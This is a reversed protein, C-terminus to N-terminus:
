RRRRVTRVDRVFVAHERRLQGGLPDDIGSGDSSACVVGDWPVDVRVDEFNVLVLREDDGHVRRLALVGDPADLLELSGQQLAPSLRRAHLTARVMNLVSLPDRAQWAVNRVKSLPPFPLWAPTGWGHGPDETWPIPARCGDRGGPDVVAPGVVVADEMGLEDGQYLFPTGRLGLLLVLGARARAERGGWRTRHRPNDHNSLVYSPWTPGDHPYAAETEAVLTAWADRDWPAWVSAFNVPVHIGLGGDAYAAQQVLDGTVVEGVLFRDAGPPDVVERIRRILPRATEHHTLVVHPLGVLREPVDRPEPDKGIANIVDVRFGDVGRDLWFRLVDLQAEVLDPHQWNVDPQEPLFLHLYYQGTAEDLEWASADTFSATWNTPPGGDPGPDAWLFWDRKESDRAARAEVFWPHRDSVHNPVFDVIIRLGAEHLAEILAEADEMSGFTPDVACHDSVDYGNDAMPSEYFPSLWVGDVGLSAIHDVHDRIGRLDGVGDGDADAFSRPYVQYMVATKWWPTAATASADSGAEPM